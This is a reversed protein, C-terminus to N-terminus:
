PQLGPDFCLSMRACKAVSLAFQAQCQRPRTVLSRAPGRTNAARRRGGAASGQRGGLPAENGFRVRYVQLNEMVRQVNTQPDEM